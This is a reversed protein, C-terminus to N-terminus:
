LSLAASPGQALLALLALLDPSDYHQPRHEGSLMRRASRQKGSYIRGSAEDHRGDFAGAKSSPEVGEGIFLRGLRCEIGRQDIGRM